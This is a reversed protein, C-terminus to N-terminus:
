ISHTPEYLADLREGYAGAIADRRLRGNETLQGNGTSFPGDARVFARVQAYDPLGANVATLAGALVADPLETRRPVLVAVCHARAEGFVAAQAIAPHATLEAEPWEPSLNRGFATILLHKRRGALYLFGDADIEGLDGTALWEEPANTGGLYGLFGHGALEIEGANLRVRVPPLPRGVSGRRRATPTNLAVVSACESLGYGEHVPLELAEARALLGAAVRGGGVALFRLASPRPAGQELAQVLAHLMQPLLVASGAGTDHMAKLCVLPDFASSGLLGVRALPPVLCEAGALLPAYIGAINELLVALPLLCLHRAIGLEATAAALSRAVQLQKALSLCVGKPTGTTGSTFTLKATGPPLTVPAADRRWVPAALGPLPSDPRLGLPGAQAGAGGLILEVGAASLAHARQAVTFFPPLPVIPVGAEAAALEALVWDLGNDLVLAVARPARETLEAALLAVRARLEARSLRREGDSLAPRADALALLEHLRKM